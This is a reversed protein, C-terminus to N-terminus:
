DAEELPESDETRTRNFFSKLDDVVGDIGPYGNKQAMKSSTYITLGVGYADASVAKTTDDVKEAMPGIKRNIEQLKEYLDLDRKLEELDVYAPVIEGISQGYSLAKEVFPKRVNDMTPIAQRESPSLNILFPLEEEIQGLLSKIKEMKENTLQASIYNKM